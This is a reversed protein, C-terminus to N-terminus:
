KSESMKTFVFSCFKCGITSFSHDVSSTYPTLDTNKSLDCASRPDKKTIKTNPDKWVNGFGRENSSTGKGTVNQDLPLSSMINQIEPLLIDNIASSIARYNQTQMLNMLSDMEQSLRAILENSLIEISEALGDQRIGLQVMEIIWIESGM